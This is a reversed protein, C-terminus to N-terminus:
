TNNANPFIHYFYYKYFRYCLDIPKIDAIGIIGLILADSALSKYLFHSFYYKKQFVMESM